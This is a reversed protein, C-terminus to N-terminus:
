IVLPILEGIVVSTAGLLNYYEGFSSAARFRLLWLCNVVKKDRDHLARFRLVSL